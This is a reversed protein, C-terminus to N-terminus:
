QLNISIKSTPTVFYQGVQEYFKIKLITSFAVTFCENKKARSWFMPKNSIYPKKQFCIICIEGEMGKM